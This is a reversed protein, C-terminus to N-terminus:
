LGEPKYLLMVKLVDRNIADAIPEKLGGNETNRVLNNHLERVYVQLLFKPVLQLHTHDDIKVMLCDNVIPSQVVKPHHM